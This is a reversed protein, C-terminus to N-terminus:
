KPTYWRMFGTQPTYFHGPPFENVTQCVAILAKLESAFWIAGKDDQGYFLPKVGLPDRAAIVQDADVYVFAFVGDLKDIAQTGQARMLHLISESDSHTTFNEEGLE